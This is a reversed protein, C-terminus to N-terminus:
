QYVECMRPTLASLRHSPLMAVLYKYFGWSPLKHFCSAHVPGDPLQLVKKGQVQQETIQLSCLHCSATYM